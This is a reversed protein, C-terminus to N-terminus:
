SRARKCQKNACVQSDTDAGAVAVSFGCVQCTQKIPQQNLIYRCNPYNDCAYFLKGFKSQREQLKGSSCVPCDIPDYATTKKLTNPTAIFHCQPFETCGIFMGFRGNKVALPAQCDPCHSHEIVKIESIEAKQFSESHHCEPYGSCGLFSQKGKFKLVLTQGCEPCNGYATSHAEAHDFLSADIKSM